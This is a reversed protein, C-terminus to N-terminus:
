RGGDTDENEIMVNIEDTIEDLQGRIKRLLILVEDESPKRRDM